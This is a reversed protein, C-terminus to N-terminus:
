GAIWNSLIFPLGVRHFFKCECRNIKMKNMEGRMRKKPGYDDGNNVGLGLIQTVGYVLSKM